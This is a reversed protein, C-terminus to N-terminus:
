TKVEFYFLHHFKLYHEVPLSPITPNAALFKPKLGLRLTDIQQQMAEEDMVIPSTAPVGIDIPTYM